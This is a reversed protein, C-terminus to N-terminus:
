SAGGVRVLTHLEIPTGDPPTLELVLDVLTARAGNEPLREVRFRTVGEALTEEVFDQGTVGGGGSQDWPVPMRMRLTSGSLYFVVPDIWDEDSSGDEDDDVASGEDVSGDGDDDVNALGAQGDGNLDAAPDEDVNGDADDDIGNIPDEDAANLYEDDDDIPTPDVVGDGADDIGVIGAAGDNTVDAGPDEDVRGDADNDADPFGNGDADVETPLAVALVATALTSGPEPPSAPVTQERVNERWTTAPKDALPLLLAHTGRLAWTMREMAFRAQRAAENRDGTTARVQFAGSVVGNLAALLIGAIALAALVEVLTMGLERRSM